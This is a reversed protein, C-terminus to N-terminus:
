VWDSVVLVEVVVNVEKVDSEAETVDCLLFDVVVWSEWVVKDDTSVLLDVAGGEMMLQLMLYNQGPKRNIRM